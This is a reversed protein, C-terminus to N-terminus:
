TAIARARVQQINKQISQAIVTGGRNELFSDRTVYFMQPCGKQIAPKHKGQPNEWKDNYLTPDSELDFMRLLLPHTWANDKGGVAKRELLVKVVLQIFRQMALTYKEADGHQKERGELVDQWPNNHKYKEVMFHGVVRYMTQGVDAGDAIRELFDVARYLDIDKAAM